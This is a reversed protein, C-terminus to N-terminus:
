GGSFPPLVDVRCGPAVSMNDDHVAVGDLLYSCRPRVIAFAPHEAAIRDLVEGLPGPAVDLVPVGVAARAAAFLHVEAM